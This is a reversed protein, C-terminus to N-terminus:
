NIIRIDSKKRLGELWANFRENVVDNYLKESIEESVDELSKGKEEMIKEVYLIQYGNPTELVDTFQGGSLGKIAQQYVPSLDDLKFLGLNGGDTSLAPDSFENALSLFSEGKVLRKHIGEMKEKIGVKLEDITMDAVPMMITRLQYKKVEGYKEPHAHYNADIDENTIIIKSKVEYNILRPRLIQNKIENRYDAMTLGDRSLAERLTEDTLYNIKKVHEIADDIEKESVTLQLRAIEQDTLHDGILKDLMKQRMDFLVKAEEEGDLNRALVQEKYPAIAKELEVLTIIDDNVVAVIRDLIDECRVNELGIFGSVGLIFLIIGMPMIDRLYGWRNLKGSQKKKMERGSHTKIV